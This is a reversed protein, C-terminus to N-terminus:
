SITDAPPHTPQVAHRCEVRSLVQVQRAQGHDQDLLSRRNEKSCSDTKLCLEERIGIRFRTHEAQSLCFLGVVREAAYGSPRHRARLNPKVRSNTIVVLNQQCPLKLPPDTSQQHRLQHLLLQLHRSLLYIPSHIPIMRTQSRRKRWQLATKSRILGQYQDVALATVIRCQRHTVVLAHFGFPSTGWLRPRGEDKRM